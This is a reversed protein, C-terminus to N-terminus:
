SPILLSDSCIFTLLDLSLLSEIHQWFANCFALLLNEEKAHAALVMSEMYVHDGEGIKENM